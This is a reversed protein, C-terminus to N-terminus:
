TRETYLSVCACLVAEFAAFEEFSILGDKTTDAAGAIFAVTQKNYNPYTYM